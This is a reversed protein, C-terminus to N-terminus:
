GWGGVWFRDWRISKAGFCTDRFIQCIKVMKNYIIRENKSEREIEGMMSSNITYSHFNCLGAILNSYVCSRLLHLICLYLLSCSLCIAFICKIVLALIYLHERISQQQMSIRSDRDPAMTVEATYRLIGVLVGFLKGM